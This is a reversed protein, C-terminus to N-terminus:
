WPIESSDWGIFKGTSAPSQNKIINILFQSSKETSFLKHEPVWDTYGYCLIDFNYEKVFGIFNPINKKNLSYSHIDHLLIINKKTTVGIENTIFTKPLSIKFKFRFLM